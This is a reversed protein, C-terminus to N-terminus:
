EEQKRKGKKEKNDAADIARSRKKWVADSIKGGESGRHAQVTLLYNHNSVIKEFGPRYFYRILPRETSCAGTANCDIGGRLYNPTNREIFEAAAEGFLEIVRYEPIADTGYFFYAEKAFLQQTEESNLVRDLMTKAEQISNKVYNCRKIPDVIGKKIPNSLEM